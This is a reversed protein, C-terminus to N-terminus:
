YRDYGFCQTVFFRTANVDRERYSRAELNTLLLLYEIIKFKVSWFLSPKRCHPLIILLSLLWFMTPVFFFRPPNVDRERYSRAEHKMTQKTLRFCLVRYM